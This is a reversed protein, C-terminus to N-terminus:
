FAASWGTPGRACTPLGPRHQGPEHRNQLGGREQKAVPSNAARVPISGTQVSESDTAQGSPWRAITMSRHAGTSSNVPSQGERCSEFRCVKANTARQEDLQAVPLHCQWRSEFGRRGASFRADKGSSSPLMDIEEVVIFTAGNGRGCDPGLGSTSSHSGGCSEFTGEETLLPAGEGLHSSPFSITSCRLTSSRVDIKCPDVAARQKGRFPAWRWIQVPRRREEPAHL